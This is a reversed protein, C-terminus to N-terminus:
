KKTKQFKATGGKKINDWCTTCPDDQTTCQLCPISRRDFQPCISMKCYRGHCVKKITSHYHLADCMRPILEVAEKIEEPLLGLAEYAGLRKYCEISSTMAKKKGNKTLTEMFEIEGKKEQEKRKWYEELGGPVIPKAGGSSKIHGYRAEIEEPSLRYEIMPKPIRDPDDPDILIKIGNQSVIFPKGMM